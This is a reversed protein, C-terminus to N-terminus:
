GVEEVKACPLAANRSKWVLNAVEETLAFCGRKDGIPFVRVPIKGKSISRRLTVASKFGMLVALEHDPMVPGYKDLMQKLFAPDIENASLDGLSAAQAQPSLKM